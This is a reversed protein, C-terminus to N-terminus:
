QGEEEQLKEPNKVEETEEDEDEDEDEPLGIGGPRVSGMLTVQHSLGLLDRVEDIAPDDPSLIAGARAMEGLAGTIQEIDRYRIPETKLTPLLEEPWGNLIGLVGVLDAEYTEVLETLTSDAQLAFQQTKDRSLAHSGAGDGLLLHEVGIIRAMERNLREIAVNIAVSSESSEGTMTEVDWQRVNSPSASEDLTEYTKSDLLLGRDPKRVHNLIFDLLPQIANDKDTKTIGGQKVAEELAFLPARAIPVGRLDTEYGYAELLQYTRLRSWPEALHRFLGLGEPSDNLSDDVAYVFKGRPLYIVNQTQPSRQVVGVVTGSTDLDWQEITAQPRAEIDKFGISGDKRRVATWEQISFGQFKFMATRRVIRYWPTTSSYIIKEVMEAIRKAEGPDVGEEESPEVRWGAKAVLNLFYRTGAAVISSNALIDSYTLYRKPAILDPNRENSQIYGGYVATGGFGLTKTPTAKASRDKGFIQDIFGM